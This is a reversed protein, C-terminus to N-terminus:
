VKGNPEWPTRLRMVSHEKENFFVIKVILDKSGVWNCLFPGQVYFVDKGLFLSDEYSAISKDGQTPTDNETESEFCLSKNQKLMHMMHYKALGVVIDTGWPSLIPDKM